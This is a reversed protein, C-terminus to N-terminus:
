SYRPNYVGPTKTTIPNDGSGTVIKRIKSIPIGSLLGEIEADYNDEIIQMIEERYKDMGSEALFGEIKKQDVEFQSLSIADYVDKWVKSRFHQVQGPDSAQRLQENRGLIAGLKYSLLAELTPIYLIAKGIDKDVCNKKVWSWPISVKGSKIQIIRNAAVADVIIEVEMRETKVKKVFEKDFMSTRKESYGHSAFYYALTVHMSKADPFVMDIDKSGLGRAYLYVAWGGVIIPHNGLTKNYWRALERLEDLSPDTIEQSYYEKM